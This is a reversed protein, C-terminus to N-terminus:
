RWMWSTRRACRQELLVPTDLEIGLGAQADVIHEVGGAVAREPRDVDLALVDELGVGVGLVDGGPELRHLQDHDM